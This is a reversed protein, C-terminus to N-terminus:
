KQQRSTRQLTSQTHKFEEGARHGKQTFDLGRIHDTSVSEHLATNSINNQEAQQMTADTNFKMQAAILMRLQQMQAVQQQSIQASVQLAQLTGTVSKLQRSLNDMTAQEDQIHKSQLGATRYASEMSKKNRDSWRKYTNSYSSNKDAKHGYETYASEINKSLNEVEKVDQATQWTLRYIDLIKKHGNHRIFSSLSRSNEIDIKYQLIESKLQEIGTITQKIIEYKNAIQVWWTACNFCSFSYVNNGYTIALLTFFIITKKM